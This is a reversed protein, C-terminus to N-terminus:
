NLVRYFTKLNKQTFKNVFKKAYYTKKIATSPNKLVIEIKNQLQIQNNINFIYGGKGNALIDNSGSCNSAICPVEYNVADILANSLGEYYSPM